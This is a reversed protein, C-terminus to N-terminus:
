RRGCCECEGYRSISECKENKRNENQPSRIKNRKWMRLIYLRHATSKDSNIHAKQTNATFLIM